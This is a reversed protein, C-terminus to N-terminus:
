KKKELIDIIKKSQEILSEYQSATENYVGGRNDDTSILKDLGGFRDSGYQDIHKLNKKLLPIVSQRLYNLPTTGFSNPQTRFSPNISLVRKVCELPNGDSAANKKIGEIICHIFTSGYPGPREWDWSSLYPIIVELGKLNATFCLYNLPRTADLSEGHISSFKTGKPFLPNSALFAKQDEPACHFIALFSSVISRMYDPNSEQIPHRGRKAQIELLERYSEEWSKLQYVEILEKKIKNSWHNHCKLIGERIALAKKAGPTDEDKFFFEALEPNAPSIKKLEFMKNFITSIVKPNEGELSRAKSLFEVGRSIQNSSFQKEAQVLAENIQIYRVVKQVRKDIKEENQFLYSNILSNKKFAERNAKLSIQQLIGVVAESTSRCIYRTYQITM